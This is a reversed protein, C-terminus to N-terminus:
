KEPTGTGHDIEKILKGQEDYEKWVGIQEDHLYEGHYRMIGNPYKVFSHGERKGKVFFTYSLETGKPSLAVWKGDRVKNKDRAGQIQVKKRGPYYLTYIGNKYEELSEKTEVKPTNKKQESSCATALLLLCILATIKM